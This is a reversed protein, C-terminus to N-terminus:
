PARRSINPISNHLLRELPSCSLLAESSLPRRRQGESSSMIRALAHPPPIRVGSLQPGAAAANVASTSAGLEARLARKAAAEV